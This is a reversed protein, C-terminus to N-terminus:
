QDVIGNGLEERKNPRSLLAEHRETIKAKRDKFIDNM